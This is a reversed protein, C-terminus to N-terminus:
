PHGRTLAEAIVYCIVTTGIILSQHLRPLWPRLTTTDKAPLQQLLTRIERHALLSHIWVGISLLVLGFVADRALPNSREAARVQWSGWLVFALLILTAADFGPSSFPSRGFYSRIPSHASV